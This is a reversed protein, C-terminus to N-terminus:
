LEEYSSIEDENFSMSDLMKAYEKCNSRHKKTLEILRKTLIKRKEIKDLSYPSIELLEDYTM